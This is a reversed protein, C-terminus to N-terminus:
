WGLHDEKGNKDLIRPCRLLEKSKRQTRAHLYIYTCENQDERERDPQHKATSESALGKQGEFKNKNQPKSPKQEIGVRRSDNAVSISGFFIPAGDVRDVFHRGLSKPLRVPKWDCFCFGVRRVLCPRRCFRGPLFFAFEVM